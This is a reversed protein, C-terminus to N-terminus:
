LPKPTSRINIKILIFTYYNITRAAGDRHLHDQLFPPRARDSAAVFYNRLSDFRRPHGGASLLLQKCESNALPFVLIDLQFEENSKWFEQRILNRTQNFNTKLCKNSIKPVDIAHIFDFPSNNGM